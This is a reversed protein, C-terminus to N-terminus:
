RCRRCPPTCCRCAPAATEARADDDLPGAEQEVVLHDIEVPQGAHRRAVAGDAGLRVLDGGALPHETRLRRGDHRLSPLTTSTVPLGPLRVIMLVDSCTTMLTTSKSMVCGPPPRHAAGADGITGRRTRKSPVPSYRSAVFFSRPWPGNRSPARALPVSMRNQDIRFRPFVDARLVLADLALHRSKSTYVSGALRVERASGAGTAWFFFDTIPQVVGFRKLKSAVQGRHYSSHNVVHRLVAWRLLTASGGPWRVTFVTNLWEPTLTPQLEEFRRYARELLRAVDDVTAMDAETPTGDADSTLSACTLM